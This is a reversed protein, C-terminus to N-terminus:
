VVKAKTADTDYFGETALQVAEEASIGASISEALSRTMRECRLNNKRHQNDM